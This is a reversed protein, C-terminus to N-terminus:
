HMLEFPLLLCVHACLAAYVLFICYCPRVKPESGCEVGSGSGTDYDAIQATSNAFRDHERARGAHVAMAGAGAAALGRSRIPDRRRVVGDWDCPCLNGREGGAADRARTTLSTGDAWCRAWAFGSCRWEVSGQCVGWDLGDRDM